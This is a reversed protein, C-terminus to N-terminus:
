GGFKAFELLAQLEEDKLDLKGSSVQTALKRLREISHRKRGLRVPRYPSMVSIDLEHILFGVPFAFALSSAAASLLSLSTSSVSGILSALTASSVLVLAFYYFLCVYGSIVFRFFQKLNFSM